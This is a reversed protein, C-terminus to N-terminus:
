PPRPVSASGGWSTSVLRLFELRGRLCIWIPRPTSLQSYELIYREDSEMSAYSLVTEQVSVYEGLTSEIKKIAKKLEEEIEEIEKNITIKPVVTTYIPILEIPHTKNTIPDTPRIVEFGNGDLFDILEQMFEDDKCMLSTNHEKIYRGLTKFENVYRPLLSEVFSKDNPIFDIFIQILEDM